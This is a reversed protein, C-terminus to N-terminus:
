PDERVVKVYLGLLNEEIIEDIAAEIALEYDVEGVNFSTEVIRALYQPTNYGRLTDFSSWSRYDDFPDHPNDLTSLAVRRTM